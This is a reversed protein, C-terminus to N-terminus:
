YFHKKRLSKKRLSKKSRRKTKRKKGGLTLLIESKSTNPNYFITEDNYITDREPDTLKNDLEDLHTEMGHCMNSAPNECNFKKICKYTKPDFIYYDRDKQFPEHKIKKTYGNEKLKKLIKDCVKKPIYEDEEDEIDEDEYELEAELNKDTEFSKSM